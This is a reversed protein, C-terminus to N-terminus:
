QMLAVVSGRRGEHLRGVLVRSFDGSGRRRTLVTERRAREALLPNVSSHWLDRTQLSASLSHELGGIRAREESGPARRASGQIMPVNM